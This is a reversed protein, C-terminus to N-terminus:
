FVTTFPFLLISLITLLKTHFDELLYIELLLSITSCCPPATTLVTMWLILMFPEALQSSGKQMSITHQPQTPKWQTNWNGGVTQLCAPEQSRKVTLLHLHSNTETLGTISQHVAWLISWRDDLAM